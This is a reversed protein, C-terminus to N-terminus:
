RTRRPLTFYFSSGSNLTSEVWIEGGYSEVIKKCSALGIGTGPYAKASHLRQFIQFIRDFYESEIGIGNDCVEFRWKDPQSEVAIHIRPATDDSRYKIANGILNTLLQVMQRPDARVVPLADATVVAGSRDIEGRLDGLVEELVPNCDTPETPRDGIGIRSYALLDGILQQMRTVAQLIQTLYGHVKPDLNGGSKMTILQAFASISMLPQQLDHSAIYAFQELERNSRALENNLQQLQEIIQQREIAYHIARVLWPRNMEGKILYDQAGQRLAEVALEEDDLGTLVVIPIKPAKEYIQRVTELGQSDPLGLDLLIANFTQNGLSQLAEDLRDVWSIEFEPMRDISTLFKQLIRADASNDEVLLIKLAAEDVGM